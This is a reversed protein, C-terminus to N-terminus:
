NLFKSTLALNLAEADRQLERLETGLTDNYRIANNLQMGLEDENLQSCCQQGSIYPSCVNLDSGVHAM